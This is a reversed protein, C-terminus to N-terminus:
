KGGAKTKAAEEDDKWVGSTHNMLAKTIDDKSCGAENFKAVAADTDVQWKKDDRHHRVQSREFLVNGWLVQIQAKLGLEPRAEEAGEEGSTSAEDEKPAMGLAEQFKVEALDFMKDAEKAAAADGAKAAFHYIKAREFCQQGWAITAEYFDPKIALSQTYRDVAKTYEEDIRKIHDKATAAMQEDSPAPQGEEPAPAACDVVKRSACVHVNGWNFVAAAAAEQFKDAAAGLLEKAKDTGVAVELAECCKELGIARLDLAGEKAGEEGLHKRFLGAFTLLWEDIEIVDEAGEDNTDPLHERSGVHPPVVVDPTESLVKSVPVIEVEVPALGADRPRPVGTAAARQEAHHIAASLAGRLDARSTVTVLDGEADKYKLAFAQDKLDDPFQQAVQDVIDKYRVSIPLVVSNTVSEEGKVLTAKITLTPMQGQGQGSAAAAAAQQQAATLRQGRKGAGPARLGGGGLGHPARSAKRTDRAARTAQLKKRVDDSGPDAKAAAELDSVARDYQQMQEYARARRLLAPKFDPAENLAQSCEQVAARYMNQMLYCAARNSYLAAKEETGTLSMEIAKGYSTLAERMNRKGFHADGERKYKAAKSAFSNIENHAADGKHNVM